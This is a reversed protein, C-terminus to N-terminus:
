GNESSSLEPETDNNSWHWVEAANTGVELSLTCHDSRNFVWFLATLIRCAVRAWAEGAKRARAIRRSLNENPDGLLATNLAKDALEAWNIIIQRVAACPTCM